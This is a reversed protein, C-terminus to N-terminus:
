READSTHTVDPRIRGGNSAASAAELSAATWRCTALRHWVCFRTLPRAQALSEQLYMRAPLGAPVPVQLGALIRIASVPQDVQLREAAMAIMEGICDLTTALADLEARNFKPSRPLPFNTTTRIQLWITLFPRRRVPRPRLMAEAQGHLITALRLQQRASQDLARAISRLGVPDLDQVRPVNPQPPRPSVSSRVGALAIPAIHGDDALMLLRDLEVMGADTFDSFAEATATQLIEAAISALVSESGPCGAHERLFNTLLLQPEPLRLLEEGLLDAPNPPPDDQLAAKRVAAELRLAVEEQDATADAILRLLVRQPPPDSGRADRMAKIAEGILAESRLARTLLTLYITIFLVFTSTTIAIIWTAADM